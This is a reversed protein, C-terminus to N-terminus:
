IQDQYTRKGFIGTGVRVHTAGYGIATEFDGSMGMSLIEMSINDAKKPSNDIFLQRMKQFYPAIEETNEKKPPVTMLGRVFIHKLGAAFKLADDLEGPLFGSKQTEEGINVELLVNMMKDKASARKEIESLVDKSGVSEIMSVREILYKVKNKQLTGIFHAECPHLLPQKDMLEQVRNEGCVKVGADIVTNIDEVPMTKTVAVLTVSDPDRGAKLAALRIRERVDALNKLLFERRDTYSNETM